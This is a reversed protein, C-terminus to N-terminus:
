SSTIKTRTRTLTKPGYIIVIALAVLVLVAVTIYLPILSDGAKMPLIPLLGVTANSAAHFLHVLLLSGRTNNYIWTLIVALAVDQLIFLLFPIHAHFDGQILFLPLHWFGWFLGIILSSSLASYQKQLRPLLFGRWGFEEGTVSFFLVYLFIVPILYWQGPDNTNVVEGGTLRYIGLSLLIAGLTSFLSFVYWFLSVKWILVKTLLEKLGSRGKTIGTILLASITPGFSGLGKLWGQTFIVFPMWILWSIVYTGVLFAVVENVKLIEKCKKM